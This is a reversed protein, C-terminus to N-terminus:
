HRWAWDTHGPAERAPPSPTRAHRRITRAVPRV